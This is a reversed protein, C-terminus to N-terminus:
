SEYKLQLILNNIEQLYQKTINDINYKEAWINKEFDKINESNKIFHATESYPLSINNILCITIISEYNKM